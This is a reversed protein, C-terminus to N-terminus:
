AGCAKDGSIPGTDGIPNGVAAGHAGGTMSSTSHSSPATRGEIPREKANTVDASFSPRISSGCDGSADARGVPSNMTSFRRLDDLRDLQGAMSSSKEATLSISSSTCLVRVCFCAGGGFFIVLALLREDTSTLATEVGTRHKGRPVVEREPAEAPAPAVAALAGATSPASALGPEPALWTATGRGAPASATPPAAGADSVAPTALAPPPSSLPAIGRTLSVRCM